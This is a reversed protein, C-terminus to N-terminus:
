KKDYIKKKIISQGKISSCVVTIKREGVNYIKVIYDLYTIFNVKDKLNNLDIEISHFESGIGSNMQLFKVFAM